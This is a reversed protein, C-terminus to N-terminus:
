RPAQEPNYQPHHHIRSPQPCTQHTGPCSHIQRFQKRNIKALFRSPLRPRERTGVTYLLELNEKARTMAVYLIRREEECTALDPMSGKPFVKENCEPIFVQEFELGKAGHVTMLHISLKEAMSYEKDKKRAAEERHLKQSYIRIGQEWEQLNAYKQAEETLWRIIDEYEERKERIRETEMGYYGAYGIAYLIYSVALAPRMEKMASAQKQLRKLPDTVSLNCGRNQYATIIAEMDTEKGMWERLPERSLYRNPKNMVRLFSEVAFHEQTLKLYALIDLVIPHEYPNKLGEKMLFPIGAKQLRLGFGQMHVNTRFLVGITRVKGESPFPLEQKYAQQLRQVLYDYMEERTQFEHFLVREGQEKSNARYNKTFRNKNEGIMELSTRVISPHSRYNTDLIFTKAGYDKVFDKFCDPAAGRFGYIAQDDDGVCFLNYPKDSLLRLLSYQIPNIDQMEDVLIHRFQKRVRKRFGQNEQLLGYADYLIDDYDFLREQKRKKEYASYAKRFCEKWIDPIYGVEEASPMTNKYFSFASLLEELDAASPNFACLKEASLVGRLLERKRKVNLFNGPNLYGNVKLIEYFISHFTGFPVSKSYQERFRSEMSQAAAKTYTIVLIEEPPVQMQDILYQIRKTIVFTKGSGPGALVLLPGEGHTVAQLQSENLEQLNLM